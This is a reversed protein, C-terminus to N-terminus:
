HKTIIDTCSKFDVKALAACLGAYDLSTLLEKGGAFSCRNVKKDWSVSVFNSPPTCKLLCSPSQFPQGSSVSSLQQPTPTRSFRQPVLIIQKPAIIKVIEQYVRTADSINNASVLLNVGPKINIEALLPLRKLVRRVESEDEPHHITLHIKDPKIHKLRQWTAKDELPLGNSTISLYCKPFLAEIIQFIDGYEFPEGGGLSVAKVGHAVCDSLFAIVENTRWSTTGRTNSHNYCFSCGKSCYNSLDISLMEIMLGLM